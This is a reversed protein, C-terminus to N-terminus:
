EMRVCATAGNTDDNHNTRIGNGEAGKLARGTKKMQDGEFVNMMAFMVVAIALILVLDNFTMETGQKRCRDPTNLCARDCLDYVKCNRCCLGRKNDKCGGQTWPCKQSNRNKKETHKISMLSM